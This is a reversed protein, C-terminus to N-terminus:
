SSPADNLCIWEVGFINLLMKERHNLQGYFHLSIKERSNRRHFLMVNMVYPRIDFPQLQNDDNMGLEMVISRDTQLILRIGTVKKEWSQQISYSHLKKSEQRKACENTTTAAATTILKTAEIGLGKVLQDLARPDFIVNYFVRFDINTVQQFMGLLEVCDICPSFTVVLHLQKCNIPNMMADNDGDNDCLYDVLQAIANLEAHIGSHEWFTNTTAVLEQGTCSTILCAVRQSPKNSPSTSEM